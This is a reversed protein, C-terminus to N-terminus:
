GQQDATQNTQVALLKLLVDPEMPKVFFYDYGARVARERDAQQSYGTIAVLLPKRPLASLREALEYGNMQPLGVDSLVVDPPDALAAALGAEGDFAVQVKYGWLRLLFAITEATDAMDEVVLVSLTRPNPAHPEPPDLRVTPARPEM